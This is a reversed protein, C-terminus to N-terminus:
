RKEGIFFLAVTGPGTHSGITSGIDYLFVNGVVNEFYSEIQNKLQTALPLCDSHSIYCKLSYDKGGLAKEKMTNFLENLSNRSGMVKKRVVLKGAEDMNLVPCVKLMNGIFGASKSIRGGRVYYTLDSSCFELRVNFKIKEAYDFLEKASLGEDRKDALIDVLLGYGSSACLSDVLYIESNPYNKKIDELALRASNYSGSLGSSLTVHVIVNNEKLLGEFYEYYTQSNIQSTKTIGGARMKDYFEKPTQSDYMDDIFDEDNVFYHYFLCKINRENLQKNNLDVPSCCSLIYNQM